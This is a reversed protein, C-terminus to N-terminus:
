FFFFVRPAFLRRLEVTALGRVRIYQSYRAELASEESGKSEASTNVTTKGVSSSQGFSSSTKDGFGLFSSSSGGQQTGRGSDRVLM